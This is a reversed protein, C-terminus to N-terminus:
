FIVARDDADTSIVPLNRRDVEAKLRTSLVEKAKQDIFLFDSKPDFITHMYFSSLLSWKIWSKPSPSFWFRPEVSKINELSNDYASVVYVKKLPFKALVELLGRVKDQGIDAKVNLLIVQPEDAELVVSLLEDEVGILASKFVSFDGRRSGKWGADDVWVIYSKLGTEVGVDPQPPNVQLGLRYVILLVSSVIFGVTLIIAVPYVYSKNLNM